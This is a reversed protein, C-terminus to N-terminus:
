FFKKYPKLRFEDKNVNFKLRNGINSEVLKEGEIVRVIEAGAHSPRSVADIAILTLPPGIVDYKGDNQINESVARISFAVKVNDDILSKLTKGNPTDLTEVVGFLKNGEYHMETIIHSLEKLAPTVHRMMSYTESDTPLPHDLEGGFRRAPVETEMVERIAPLMTSLPYIRGNRNPVDATHLIAEFITKNSSKKVVKEVSSGLSSEMIFFM